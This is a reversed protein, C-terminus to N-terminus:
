LLTLIKAQMINSRLFGLVIRAQQGGDLPVSSGNEKTLKISSLCFSKYVELSVALPKRKM